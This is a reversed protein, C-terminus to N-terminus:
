TGGLSDGAPLPFTGIGDQGARRSRLLAPLDGGGPFVAVGGSGARHLFFRDRPSVSVSASLPRIGLLVADLVYAQWGSLLAFILGAALAIAVQALLVTYDRAREPFDGHAMTEFAQAHAMVGPISSGYPDVVRDRAASQATEGLFVAKGRIDAAKKAIDLVSIIPISRLYRILLPRGAAGPQAPINVDGIRIDNSATDTQIPQDRASSLAVLSLAWRRQHQAIRELPIERTVGDRDPDWEVHGVRGPDAPEFRPLPDEWIGNPLLECPMILNPTNRLAEELRADEGSDGPDALIIDIAVLKPQAALLSELAAALIPRRARPGGMQQFTAEDFASWWRNLSGTPRQRASMMVDYAYNDLRQAIQRM